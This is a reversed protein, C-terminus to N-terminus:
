HRLVNGIDHLEDKRTRWVDTEVLDDDRWRCLEVTDNVSAFLFVPESLFMQVVSLILLHFSECFFPILKLGM